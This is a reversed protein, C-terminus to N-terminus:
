SFPGWRPTLKEEKGIMLSELHTDWGTAREASHFEIAYAVIRKLLHELDPWQQLLERKMRPYGKDRRGHVHASRFKYIEKLTGLAEGLDEGESTPLRVLEHAFRFALDTNSSILSELCIAIDLLGSSLDSQGLASVFHEITVDLKGERQTAQHVLAYNTRLADDNVGAYLEFEQGTEYARIVLPVTEDISDLAKTFVWAERTPLSGRGNLHVAALVKNLHRQIGERDVKAGEFTVATPQRATGLLLRERQEAAVHLEEALDGFRVALALEADFGLLSPQETLIPVAITAM